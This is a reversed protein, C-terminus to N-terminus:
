KSVNNEENNMSSNQDLSSPLANAVYLMPDIVKPIPKIETGLEKEIRHLDYRDDYTILNIAIGAFLRFLGWSLEVNIDM